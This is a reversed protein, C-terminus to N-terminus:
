IKSIKVLYGKKGGAYYTNCDGLCMINVYSDLKVDELFVFQEEEMKWFAIRSDWGASLLMDGDMVLTNVIMDHKKLIQAEKYVNGKKRMVQLDMGSRSPCVLVDDERNIVVPARGPFTHNVTVTNSFQSIEGFRTDKKETIDAVIIENDRGTYVTDCASNLAITWVETYYEKKMECETLNESWRCLSGMVDGAYLKGGKFLLKRVTAPEQELSAAGGGMGGLDAGEGTPGTQLATKMCVPVSDVAWMKIDGDMSCSYLINKQPNCALDYVVYEHAKWSKQLELDTNWAKIFGDDSGTYLVGNMVICCEVDDSHREAESAEKSVKFPM